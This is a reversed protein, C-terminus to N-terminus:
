KKSKTQAFLVSDVVVNYVINTWIITKVPIDRNCECAMYLALYLM